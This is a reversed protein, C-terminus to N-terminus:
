YSLLADYSYDITNVFAFFGIVWVQYCSSSITSFTVKVFKSLLCLISVDYSLTFKCINKMCALLLLICTIGLFLEIDCLFELSAKAHSTTAEEEFIGVV